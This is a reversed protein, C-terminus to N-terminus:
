PARPPFLLRLKEDQRQDDAQFDSAPAMLARWAAAGRPEVWLVDPHMERFVFERGHKGPGQREWAIQSQGPVHDAPSTGEVLARPSAGAQRVGQMHAM